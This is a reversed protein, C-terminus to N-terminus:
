GSLSMGEGRLLLHSAIFEDGFEEKGANRKTLPDYFSSPSGGSMVRCNTSSEAAM